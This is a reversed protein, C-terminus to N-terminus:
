DELNNRILTGLKLICYPGKSLRQEQGSSKQGADLDDRGPEGQAAEAQREALLRRVRIRLRQSKRHYM